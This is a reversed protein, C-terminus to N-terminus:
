PIRRVQVYTAFCTSASSGPLYRTLQNRISACSCSMLYEVVTRTVVAVVGPFSARVCFLIATRADADEWSKGPRGIRPPMIGNDCQWFLALLTGCWQSRCCCLCNLTDSVAYSSSCHQRIEFFLRVVARSDYRPLNQSSSDIGWAAPLESPNVVFLGVQMANCPFPFINTVAGDYLTMWACVASGRQM